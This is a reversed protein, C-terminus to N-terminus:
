SLKQTPNSSKFTQPNVNNCIGWVGLSGLKQGPKDREMPEKFRTLDFYKGIICWELLYIVTTCNYSLM